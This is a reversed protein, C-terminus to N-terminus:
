TAALFFFLPAERGAMSIAGVVPGAGCANRAQLAGQKAMVCVNLVRVLKVEKENNYGCCFTARGVRGELAGGVLRLFSRTMAHSHSCRPSVGRGM